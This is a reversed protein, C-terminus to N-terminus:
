FDQKQWFVLCIGKVALSLGMYPFNNNPTMGILTWNLSAEILLM